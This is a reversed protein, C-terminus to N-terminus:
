LIWLFHILSMHYSYTGEIFIPAVLASVISIHEQWGQTRHEKERIVGGDHSKLRPPREEKCSKRQQEARPSAVGCKFSFLTLPLRTFKSDGQGSGLNDEGM